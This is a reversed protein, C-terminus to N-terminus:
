REISSDSSRNSSGSGGDSIPQAADTTTQNNEQRERNAREIRDILEANRVLYSRAEHLANQSEDIRNGIDLNYQTSREIRGKAEHSLVTGRDIASQIDRNLELSERQQKEIREVTNLSDHNNSGTPEHFIYWLCFISLLVIAGIVYYLKPYGTVTSKIKEYM